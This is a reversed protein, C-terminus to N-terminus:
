GPSQIFLWAAPSPIGRWGKNKTKCVEKSKMLQGSVGNDKEGGQKLNRSKYPKKKQM